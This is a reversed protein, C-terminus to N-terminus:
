TPERTTLHPLRLLQGPRILDPDAGIVGRNRLYILRWRDTIDAANARPPLEAAALTWLTDGSRVAVVRGTAHAPGVARQPLPLGTLVDHGDPHGPAALAPRVALVSVVAVGCATLVVRRVAGPRGSGTSGRWAEVVAALGQLWGWAVSALLAVLCLRVLSEGSTGSGGVEATLQRGLVTAAGWAAVTVGAAVVLCRTRVSDSGAM